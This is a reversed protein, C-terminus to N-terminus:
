RMQRQTASRTLAHISITLNLQNIRKKVDCETHTRPNFNLLPVINNFTVPRVGHSHTSQFIYFKDSVSKVSTASRTLAHISISYKNFSKDGLVDCETHTRPNFNVFKKMEEEAVEDCETHTRPNFNSINSLGDM